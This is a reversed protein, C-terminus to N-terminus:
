NTLKRFIDELNSQEKFLQHLEIKNEACFHYLKVNFNEESSTTFKIKHFDNGTAVMEMGIQPFQSNFSEQFSNLNGAFELFFSSGGQFKHALENPTGDAVIQGENIILVRNCLAEVEQLIHSSLLVTKEKGLRIILDRIELIQNPDLGTTPEDLILVSPDHILSQALGVRQRYGKSLTEIPKNIVKELGCMDIMEDIRDSVKEKPVGSIEASYELYENVTLDLYLPNNEPLFGITQKVKEPENLIDFGNVKATGGSPQLIGSLMKMTTSKGAGNPGLFGVIEGTNVTFSVSSVASFNGYNKSLTSVVISM